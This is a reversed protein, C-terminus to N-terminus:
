NKFEELNQMWHIAEELSSCRKLSKGTFQKELTANMYSINDYVIIASAIIFGFEKNFNTWLHPDISCSNVRNSIYGISINYGYHRILEITVEQIKFWDFHVGEHLESIMFNDLLYFRGFSFILEKHELSNFYISDVFKM